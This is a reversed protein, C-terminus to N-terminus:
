PASRSLRGQVYPSGARPRGRARRPLRFGKFLALAASQHEHLWEHFMTGADPPELLLRAESEGGDRAMRMGSRQALHMMAQNEALCHVFVERVNRNRLHAVARAFLAKGIGHGRHRALVSLGLEAASEGFAVHIVGALRGGDGRVAIVTDREFDIREVYLAIAEDALSAGFRLRRDEGELSLFHHRLATRDRAALRVTLPSANKM